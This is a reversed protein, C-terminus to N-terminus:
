SVTITVTKGRYFDAVEDARAPSIFLLVATLGICASYPPCLRPCLKGVVFPKEHATGVLLPAEQMSASPPCPARLDKRRSSPRALAKAWGVLSTSPMSTVGVKREQLFRLPPQQPM